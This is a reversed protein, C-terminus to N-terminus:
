LGPAEQEYGAELAPLGCCVIEDPLSESSIIEIGLKSFVKKYIEFNNKHKFYTMCGPFYLTDPKQFISFLGM